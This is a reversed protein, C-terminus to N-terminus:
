MEVGSLISYYKIRILDRKKGCVGETKKRRNKIWTSINKWQYYRCKIINRNKEWVKEILDQLNKM